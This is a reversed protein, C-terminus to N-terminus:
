PRAEERCTELCAVADARTRHVCVDQAWGHRELYRGCFWVTMTGGPHHARLGYSGDAYVAHTIPAKRIEGKTMM